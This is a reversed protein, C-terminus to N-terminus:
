CLLITKFSNLNNNLIFDFFRFELLIYINKLFISVINFVGPLCIDLFEEFNDFNILYEKEFLIEM